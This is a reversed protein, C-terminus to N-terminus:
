KAKNIPTICRKELESDIQRITEMVPVTLPECQPNKLTKLLSGRLDVLQRVTHTTFYHTM